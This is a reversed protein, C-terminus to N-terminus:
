PMVGTLIWGSALPGIIHFVWGFGILGCAGLLVLMVARIM